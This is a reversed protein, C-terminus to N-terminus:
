CRKHSTSDVIYGDQEDILQELQTFKQKFSKVELQITAIYIIKWNSATYNVVAPM